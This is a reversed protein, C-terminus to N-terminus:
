NVHLCFFLKNAAMKSYPTNNQYVLIIIVQTMIQVFLDTMVWLSTQKKSYELVKIILALIFGFIFM